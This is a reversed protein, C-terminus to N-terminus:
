AAVSYGPPSCRRAASRPALRGSRETLVTSSAAPSGSPSRPSSAAPAARASTPVSRLALSFNLVFTKAAAYSAFYPSPQFGATSGVNIVGGDGRALMAPVLLRTLAVVSVVNVMLQDTDRGAPIEEFRGATGIEDAAPQRRM